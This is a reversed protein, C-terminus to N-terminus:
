NNIELFNDAATVINGLRSLTNCIEAGIFGTGGLVIKHM